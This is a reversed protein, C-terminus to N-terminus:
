WRWSQNNPKAESLINTERYIPVTKEPLPGTFEAPFEGHFLPVFKELLRYKLTGRDQLGPVPRRALILNVWLITKNERSHPCAPSNEDRLKGPNLFYIYYQNMM